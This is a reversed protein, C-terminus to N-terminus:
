SFMSSQMYYNEILCPSDTLCTCSQMQVQNCQYTGKMSIHFQILIDFTKCLISYEDLFNCESPHAFFTNKEKKRRVKWIKM